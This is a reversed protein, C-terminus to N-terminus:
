GKKMVEQVEDWRANIEAPTMKAIADRTLPVGAKGRAGQGLDPPQTFSAKLYPKSRLIEGLLHDLNRPRGDDSYEIADRDLMALADAPDAFGLRNASGKVADRLDAEKLRQDREEVARQLDALQAQLKEAESMQAQKAAADKDEFHKLKTRFAAAEKRAATLEKQLTAVDPVSPTDTPPTDGAPPTSGGAAPPPDAVATGGGAGPEGDFWAHATRAPALRTSLLRHLTM